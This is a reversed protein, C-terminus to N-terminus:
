TALRCVKESAVPDRLRTIKWLAIHPDPYSMQPDHGIRINMIQSQKSSAPYKVFDQLGHLELYYYRLRVDISFAPCTSFLERRIRNRQRLSVAPHILPAESRLSDFAGLRSSSSSTELPRTKRRPAQHCPPEFSITHFGSNQLGIDHRGSLIKGCM